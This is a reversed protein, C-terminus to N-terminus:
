KPVYINLVNRQDLKYNDKMAQLIEPSLDGAGAEPSDIDIRVIIQAFQRTQVANLLLSQDWRGYKTAHTQTFPDTTWLKKHTAVMLGVNDSYATGGNNTVYQFINMMGATRDAKLQNFEIQLWLPVGFLAPVWALSVLGVAVAGARWGWAIKAGSLLLGVGVGLGICSAAVVDLLHNHNGGLTGTGISVALALLFYLLLLLGGSRPLWYELRRSRAFLWHVGFVLVAIAGPVLFAGYDIVLSELYGYFRDPFWPLSHLTFQHYFYGGDTLWNLLLSPIAAGAAYAAGFGVGTRPRTLILWGIAAVAGAIATQKTYFAPVFFALAWWVQREPRAMVWWLGSLGLAMALMDPKVLSGWFTVLGLSWFLLAGLAGALWNKSLTRVIGFIAVGALLTALLSIARGIKFSPEDGLLAQLPWCLMYLLPPYPAAIFLDPTLPAYIDTGHALLGTEAVIMGESEDFQFPYQFMEASTAVSVVTKAALGVVLLACVALLALRAIRNSADNPGSQTSDTHTTQM